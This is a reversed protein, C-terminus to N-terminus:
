TTTDVICKYLLEGVTVILIIRAVVNLCYDSHKYLNYEDLGFLVDSIINRLVTSLYNHLFGLGLGILLALIPSFQIKIICNKPTHMM